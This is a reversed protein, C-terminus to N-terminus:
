QNKLYERIAERVVESITRDDRNAIRKLERWYHSPLRLNHREMTQKDDAEQRGSIQRDDAPQSGKTQEKDELRGGSKLFDQMFNEPVKQKSM